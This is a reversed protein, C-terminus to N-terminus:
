RHHSEEEKVLGRGGALTGGMVIVIVTVAVPIQLSGEEAEEEEEEETEQKAKGGKGVELVGGIEFRVVEEEIGDGSSVVVGVDKVINVDIGM